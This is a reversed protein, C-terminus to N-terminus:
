VPCNQVICICTASQSNLTGTAEILVGQSGGGHWSSRWTLSGGNNWSNINGCSTFATNCRDHWVVGTAQSRVFCSEETPWCHIAGPKTSAQDISDRGTM